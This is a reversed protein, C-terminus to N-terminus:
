LLSLGLNMLGIVVLAAFIVVAGLILAVIACSHRVPSMTPIRASGAALTIPERRVESIPV